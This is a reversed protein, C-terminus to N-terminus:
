DQGANETRETGELKPIADKGLLHFPPTSTDIIITTEAALLKLTELSKLFRHLEPEEDFVKYYEAAAKEGEALIKKAQAQATYLILDRDRDARSRINTAEGEGQSIYEKALADRESKMREFVKTSVAEPLILRKVGVQSIEVGFDDVAKDHV